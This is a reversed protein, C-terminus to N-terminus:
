NRPVAPELRVLCDQLLTKSPLKQARTNGKPVHQQNKVQARCAPCLLTLIKQHPTGPVAPTLTTWVAFHMWLLALGMVNESPVM